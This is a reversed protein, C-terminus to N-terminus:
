SGALLESSHGHSTQAAIQGSKTVPRFSHVPENSNPVPDSSTPVQRSPTRLPHGSTGSQGWRLGSSAKRNTRTKGTSNRGPIYAPFSQSKKHLHAKLHLSPRHTPPSVTPAAIQWSAPRHYPIQFPMCIHFCIAKPHHDPHASPFIPGQLSSSGIHLRPDLSFPSTM